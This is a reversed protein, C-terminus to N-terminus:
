FVFYHYSLYRDRICMEGAMIATSMKLKMEEQSEFEVIEIQYSEDYHKTCYKNSDRICM